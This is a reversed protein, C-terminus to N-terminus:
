REGLLLAITADVTAEFDFRASSEKAAGALRLRLAEDDRLRTLAAGLAGPDGYPVLLGTEGDRVVEPNGGRDSAIVALGAASAELLTHSLGEYSSVLVLADARALQEGVRDEAIRGAFEVRGAIGLQATIEELLPREPGDGVLVLRVGAVDKVALLLTEIGKWNTMRGVFVVRLDAGSRPRAAFQAFREKEVGNLIVRIRSPEVGWGGVLGRLYESPTVVARALELSRLRQRALQQLYPHSPPAKQFEDISLSTWGSNRATEWVSDGVVKLVYRRGTWGAAVAAARELGNVLIRDHKAMEVTLAAVAKLQAIANSSAHIRRVRFPQTRDSPESAADSSCVVTVSEGRRALAGALRDIFSAPGGIQPPFINTVLLVRSM